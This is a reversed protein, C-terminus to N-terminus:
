TRESEEHKSHYNEKFVACNCELNIEFAVDHQEGSPFLLERPKQGFALEYPCAGTTQHVQANM